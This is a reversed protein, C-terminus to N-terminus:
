PTTPRPAIQSLDPWGLALESLLAGGIEIEKSGLRRAGLKEYFRVAPNQELVWVLMNTFGKALLSAALTSVLARGIGKGQVEQLLYLAYMEARYPDLPERLAGGSVFGVVDGNLNAVHVCIDREFWEQWLPIREAESLSALYDAPVVGAYTTLWSQVHVHSIAAADKPEAIRISVM